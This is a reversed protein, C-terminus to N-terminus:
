LPYPGTANGSQGKACVPRGGEAAGRAIKATEQLSIDALAIALHSIRPNKGGRHDSHELKQCLAAGTRELVFRTVQEAQKILDLDPDTRRPSFSDHASRSLLASCEAM